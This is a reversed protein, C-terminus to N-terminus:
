RRGSRARACEPPPRRRPRWPPARGAACPQSAPSARRAPTHGPCRRTGPTRGGLASQGDVPAEIRDVVERAGDARVRIRTRCRRASRSGSGQPPRSAARLEVLTREAFREGGGLALFHAAAGHGREQELAHALQRASLAHLGVKRQQPVVGPSGGPERRRKPRKPRKPNSRSEQM